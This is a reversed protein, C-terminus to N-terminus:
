ETDLSTSNKDMFQSNELVKKLDGFSRNVDESVEMANTTVDDISSLTNNMQSSVQEAISKATEAKQTEAHVENDILVSLTKIEDVMKSFDEMSFATKNAMSNITQLHGSIKDALLSANEALRRIENAVVSFGKGLEGAHVAEISANIALVRTKEAIEDIGTAMSQIAASEEKLRLIESLNTKMESQHRDAVEGARSTNKSIESLSDLIENMNEDLRSVDGVASSSIQLTKSLKDQMSGLRTGIITINEELKRSYTSLEMSARAKQDELQHSIESQRKQSNEADKLAMQQRRIANATSTQKEILVDILHNYVEALDGAETGFEVDVKLEESYEKTVTSQWMSNVVERLTSTAGHEAINLGMIEDELSVRMPNVANIIKIFLFALSFAWVFAVGAGLAQVGIQEMRTLGTGALLDAKMFIGVSLTGWIGNFGHVPIAGVVDDIKFVKEILHSGFYVIMGSVLGIIMAGTADVFACGATIGVLGALVGNAIMEPEPKKDFIWSTATSAIAGFSAALVTNFIIGGIQDNAALTSGGNFGFWGLFLIFTGLYAMPLNHPNIKVPKGDPDFKGVRPGIIICGALAVWAGVSHVVTSGAFDLFGRAELWGPTGGTLFSGWAWHGFIPYIVASTMTSMILYQAFKTREAVAGSDITAATGVFVAQFVFFAIVWSDEFSHPMFHNTGILGHFSEGFMLGFGFLWFVATALVFDALNKISVNISNKARSLGSELAMFGAQMFFVLAACLLVWIEDLRNQFDSLDSSLDILLSDEAVVVSPASEASEQAWLPSYVATSLFSLVLSLFLFRKKM